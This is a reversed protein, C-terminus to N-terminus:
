MRRAAFRALVPGAALVALFRLVQMAMVFPVDVRTESAIIAVSDAGGPSTALYCSLMDRGSVLTLLWGLAAGSAILAGISLLIRPLASAVSRLVDRRSGWASGGASWRM